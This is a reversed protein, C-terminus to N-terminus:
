EKTDAVIHAEVSLLAQSRTDAISVEQGFVQEKNLELQPEDHALMVVYPKSKGVERHEIHVRMLVVFVLVEIAFGVREARTDAM